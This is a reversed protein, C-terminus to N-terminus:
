SEKKVLYNSLDIYNPILIEYKKVISWIEYPLRKNAICNKIDLIELADEPTYFKVLNDTAVRDAILVGEIDIISIDIPIEIIPVNSMQQKYIFPHSRSFVLFVYNDFGRIKDINQSTIDTINRTVIGKNTVERNCFITKHEEISPINESHTYHFIYDGRLKRYEDSISM